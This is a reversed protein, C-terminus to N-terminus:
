VGVGGKPRLESCSQASVCQHLGQNLPGSASMDVDERM